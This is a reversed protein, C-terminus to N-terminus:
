ELVGSRPTSRPDYPSLPAPPPATAVPTPTPAKTPTPTPTTTTVTPTVTTAPTPAPSGAATQGPTGLGLGPLMANLGAMGGAIMGGLGSMDAQQDGLYSPLGPLKLEGTKGFNISLSGKMAEGVPAGPYVLDGRKQAGDFARARKPDSLGPDTTPAPITIGKWADAIRPDLPNSTGLTQMTQSLFAQQFAPDSALRSAQDSTQTASAAAVSAAIPSTYTVGYVEGAIRRSPDLIDVPNFATLAGPTTSSSVTTGTADIQDSKISRVVQGDKISVTTTTKVGAKGKSSTNGVTSIQGGAALTKRQEDTLGQISGIQASLNSTGATVYIDGKQDKALTAGSAYPSSLSWRNQGNADQYGYMDVTKGAINYSVSFGVQKPSGTPDNPDTAYVAHPMVMVTQATGGLSPVVIAQAGPPVAGAPVIGIRGKGTPDYQGNADVPAYAYALPNAAMETTQQTYVSVDAAIKQDVGAHGVMAGFSPSDGAEEGLLRKADADLMLKSDPGLGPTKQMKGIAMSFAAAASQKDMTSAYPNDWVKHFANSATQYAQAVPWAALSQGWQSMDSQAKVASAYATAFGGKSARDAILDFGRNASQLHSSFYGHTIQGNFGPDGKALADRLARYEDPHSKLNDTLMSLLKDGNGEIDLGTQNALKAVASTLENGIAIDKDTTSKVFANFADVKAKESAARGRAKASEMLQAADKQLSRWFESDRPVKKAWDTFFKAYQGDSMKGQVHLLDAKSQAIGYELQMVNDKIQEYFPDKRDLGAQRKRWYALVSEDTVKAGQFVGGNQWADMITSDKTSQMERSAAIITSAISPSVRPMYGRRGRRAM